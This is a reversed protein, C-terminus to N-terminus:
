QLLGTRVKDAGPSTSPRKAQRVGSGVGMFVQGVSRKAAGQSMYSPLPLGCAPGERFQSAKNRLFKM